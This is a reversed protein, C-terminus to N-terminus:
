IRQILKVVAGIAKMVAAGCVNCLYHQGIFFECPINKDLPRVDIHVAMNVIKPSDNKCGDCKM